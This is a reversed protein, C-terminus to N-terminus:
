NLGELILEVLVLHIAYINICLVGNNKLDM